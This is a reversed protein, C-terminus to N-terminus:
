GKRMYNNVLHSLTYPVFVPVGFRKHGRLLPYFAKSLVGKAIRDRKGKILRLPAKKALIRVLPAYLATGYIHVYRAKYLLYCFSVKHTSVFLDNLRVREGGYATPYAWLLPLTFARAYQIIIRYPASLILPKWYAYTGKLLKHSVKYPYRAYLHLHFPFFRCTILHSHYTGPRRPKGTGIVQCPPPMLHMDKFCQWPSPTHHGVAYGM